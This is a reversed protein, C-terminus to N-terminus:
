TNRLNIMSSRMLDGIGKSGHEDLWDLMKLRYEQWNLVVGGERGIRTLVDQTVPLPLKASITKGEKGAIKELSQICDASLRCLACNHSLSFMSVLKLRCKYSSNYRGNLTTNLNHVFTALTTITKTPILCGIANQEDSNLARNRWLLNCTDLVYGNFNIIEGQPVRNPFVANLTELTAKYRALISSLISTNCITSTFILHYVTQPIPITLPIAMKKPAFNFLQTLEMYFQLVCIGPSIPAVIDLNGWSTEFLTLCLLESRLILDSLPPSTSLNTDSRILCGWHRIINTYCCLLSVKAQISNDLIAAELRSFYANRLNSYGEVPLYELLALINTQYDKGNWISLYRRFFTLASQPLEHYSAKVYRVYGVLVELVYSLDGSECGQVALLDLEDEFFNQLWNEMRQSAQNNQVLLLYKQALPDALASAIQNPLQVKDLKQVFSNISRVEELSTFGYTVKSTRASPIVVEARSRKAGERRVVQFSRMKSCKSKAATEQLTRMRSIWEADIHRFFYTGQKRSLVSDTVIIDPYYSKFVRLLGLLEREEGATNRILEMLSQIRFPKVHKRRTIMSLLCCLLHRITIMELNDFFVAYFKSLYSQDELGDYVLILWQLLLNQTVASPKTKSPGLSAIVRAILKSPVRESPYLNKVLATVTTQNLYKSRVIVDLLRDLHGTEIGYEYALSTISKAADLISDHRQNKPVFASQELQAIADELNKHGMNVTPLIDEM